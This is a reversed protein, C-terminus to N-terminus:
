LFLNLSLLLLTLMMMLLLFFYLLLALIAAFLFLLRSLSGKIPLPLLFLPLLLSTGLSPILRM